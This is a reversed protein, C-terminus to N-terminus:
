IGREPGNFWPCLLIPFPVDNMPNTYIESRYSGVRRWIDRQTDVPVVLQGCSVFKHPGARKYQEIKTLQMGWVDCEINETTDPWWETSGCVSPQAAYSDRQPTEVPRRPTVELINPLEMRAKVCLARDSDPDLAIDADNVERRGRELYDHDNVNFWSWSPAGPELTCDSEKPRSV